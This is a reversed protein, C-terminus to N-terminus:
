VTSHGQQLQDEWHGTTPASITVGHSSLLLRSEPFSAWPQPTICPLPVSSAAGLWGTGGQKRIDVEM